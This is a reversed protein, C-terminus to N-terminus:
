AFSAQIIGVIFVVLPSLVIKHGVRLCVGGLAFPFRENVLQQGGQGWLPRPWGVRASRRACPPIRCGFQKVQWWSGNAFPDLVPDVPQPFPCGSVASTTLMRWVRSVVYQDGPGRLPAVWELDAPVPVSLLHNAHVLNM